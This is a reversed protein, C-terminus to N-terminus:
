IVKKVGLVFHIISNQPIKETQRDGYGLYPPIYVEVVGGESILSLAEQWGIILDKVDFNLAEEPTIVQFVDGNLLSGTYYIDVNDTYKIKHKGEGEKIIRYYLGSELSEFKQTYVSDIHAEIKANFIAKQDDNYTKCAFATFVLLSFTLFRKM